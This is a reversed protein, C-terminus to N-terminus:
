SRAEPADPGKRMKSLLSQRYTKVMESGWQWVLIPMVIFAIPNLEYAAHLDFHILRQCARTLGCGYCEMELLLVSLCVPFRDDFFDAPLVWLAVPLGIM